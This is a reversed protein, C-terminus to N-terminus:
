GAQQGVVGANRHLGSRAHHPETVVATFQDVDRARVTQRGSRRVFANGDFNEGSLAFFVDREVITRTDTSVRSFAVARDSRDSPDLPQAGVADALEQVTYTWGM